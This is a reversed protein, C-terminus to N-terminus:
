GLKELRNKAKKKTFLWLVLPILGGFPGLLPALAALISKSGSELQIFLLDSREIFIRYTGASSIPSILKVDFTSQAAAPQPAITKRLEERNAVPEGDLPCFTVDDTYEKGCYSCRKMEDL